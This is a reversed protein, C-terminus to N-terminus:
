FKNEKYKQVFCSFEHSEFELQVEHPFSTCSPTVFQGERGRERDRKERGRERERRREKGGEKM